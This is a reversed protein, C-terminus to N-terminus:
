VGLEEFIDEVIDDNVLFDFDGDAIKNRQNPDLQLSKMNENILKELQSLVRMYTAREDIALFYKMEKLTEHKTRLYILLSILYQRDAVENYFRRSDLLNKFGDFLAVGFDGVLKKEEDTLPSVETTFTMQYRQEEKIRNEIFENTKNDLVLDDFKKRPRAM